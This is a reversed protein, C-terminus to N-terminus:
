SEDAPERLECEKVEQWLNHMEDFRQSAFRRTEENSSLRSLAFFNAQLISLSYLAEDYMKQLTKEM